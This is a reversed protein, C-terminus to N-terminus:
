MYQTGDRIGTITKHDVVGSVKVTSFALLYVMLVLLIVIPVAIVIGYATRIPVKLEVVRRM